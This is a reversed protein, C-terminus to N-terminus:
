AVELVDRRRLSQLRFDYLLIDGDAHGELEFKAAHKMGDGALLLKTTLRKFASFFHTQM